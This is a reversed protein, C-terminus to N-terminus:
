RFFFVMFYWWCKNQFRLALSLFVSLVGRRYQLHSAIIINVCDYAVVYLTGGVICVTSVPVFDFSFM